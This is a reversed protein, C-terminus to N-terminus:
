MRIAFIQKKHLKITKAAQLFSPVDEFVVEDGGSAQLTCIFGSVPLTISPLYMTVIPSL